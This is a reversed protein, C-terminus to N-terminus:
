NSSKRNSGYKSLMSNIVSKSKLKLLKNQTRCRLLEISCTTTMKVDDGLTSDIYELLHILAAEVEPEM